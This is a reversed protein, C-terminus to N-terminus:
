DRLIKIENDVIKAIEPRVAGKEKIKNKKISPVAILKDAIRIQGCDFKHAAIQAGEDGSAGAHALGRLQGWVLVDGGAIIEAQPNVDGFIFVNGPYKILQGSRLNQKIYLTDPLKSIMEERDKKAQKNQEPNIEYADIQEEDNIKCLGKLSINRKNLEVQMDDIVTNLNEDSIGAAALVEKEPLILAVTSGALFDSTGETFSAFRSIFSSDLLNQKSLDLYTGKKNQKIRIQTM